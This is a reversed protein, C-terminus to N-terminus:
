DFIQYFKNKFTSYTKFLGRIYKTFTYNFQQLFIFFQIPCLISYFKNVYKYVHIYFIKKNYM